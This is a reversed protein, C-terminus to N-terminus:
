RKMVSRTTAPTSKLTRVIGAMAEAATTAEIHGDGFMCLVKGIPNTGDAEYMLVQEAGLEEYMHGAGLYVYSSHGGADIQPALSQSASKTAPTASGWEVILVEPTCDTFELVDGLHEPLRGDHANAYMLFAPALERLNEAAKVAQLTHHIRLYFRAGGFHNRVCAPIHRM